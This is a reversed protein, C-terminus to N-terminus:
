SVLKNVETNIKAIHYNKSNKNLSISSRFGWHNFLNEELTSINEHVTPEDKVEINGHLFNDRIIGSLEFPLKDNKFIIKYRANNNFNIIKKISYHILVQQGDKKLLIFDPYYDYDKLVSKQM